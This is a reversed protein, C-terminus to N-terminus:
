GFDIPKIYAPRYSQQQQRCKIYKEKKQGSRREREHHIIIVAPFPERLCISRSNNQKRASIM